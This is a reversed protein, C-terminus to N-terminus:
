VVYGLVEVQQAWHGARQRLEEAGLSSGTVALLLQGLAHGQIREVGGQLLRVRGGLASF